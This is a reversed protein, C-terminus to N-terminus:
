PDAKKLAREDDVLAWYEEAVEIYAECSEQPLQGLAVHWDLHNRYSIRFTAAGCVPCGILDPTLMRTM